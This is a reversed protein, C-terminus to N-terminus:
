PERSASPPTESATPEDVWEAIIARDADHESRQVQGSMLDAGRCSWCVFQMLAGCTPCDYGNVHFM